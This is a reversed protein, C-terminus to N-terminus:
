QTWSLNVWDVALQGYTNIGSWSPGTAEIKITVCGTPMTLLNYTHTEWVEGTHAVPTYTDILVGNVYVKFSDVAQGNLVRLTLVGDRAFSGVGCVRVYAAKDRDSVPAYTVRCTGPAIASWSGGHTTPEIPGWSWVRVGQLGVVTQTESTPDGIDIKISKNVWPHTSHFTIFWAEFLYQTPNWNIMKRGSCDVDTSTVLWIKAGKAINQDTAIPLDGITAFSSISLDGRTNVKGKGLCLLNNGPWPDPYYILQYTTGRLAQPFDHGNVQFWFREAASTYRMYAWAAWPVPLWTTRDKQYLLLHKDLPPMAYSMPAMVGVLVFLLM